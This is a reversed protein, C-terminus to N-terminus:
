DPCVDVSPVLSRPTRDDDGTPPGPVLSLRLDVPSVLAGDPATRLAAGAAGSPAPATTPATPAAPAPDRTVPSGVPTVSTAASQSPRDLLADAAGADRRPASARATVTVGVPTAVAVDVSVPPSAITAPDPAPPATVPAAVPATTVPPAAAPPAVTPRDVTPPAVATTVPTALGKREEVPPAVHEVVPAVVETVPAVASVVVETVETVPAAVPTAAVAADVPDLLPAVAAATSPSVTTVVDAAPSSREGPASPQVVASVETLLSSAASTRGLVGDVPSAQAAVAGGVLVAAGLGVTAVARPLLRRALLRTRDTRAAAAEM